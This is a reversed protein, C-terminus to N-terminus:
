DFIIMVAKYLLLGLHTICAVPRVLVAQDENFLIYDRGSSEVATQSSRLARGIERAHIPSQDNLIDTKDCAEFDWFDKTNDRM